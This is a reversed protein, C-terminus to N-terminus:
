AEELKLNQPYGSSLDNLGVRMARIIVDADHADGNRPVDFDFLGEGTEYRVDGYIDALALYATQVISSVAACLVDNGYEALGSHGSCRVRTVIGNTKFLTVKIM